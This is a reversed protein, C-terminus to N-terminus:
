KRDAKELYLIAKPTGLLRLRSLIEQRAQPDREREALRILEDDAQANFLGIIIPRKAPASARAYLTVLQDRGGAQGLTVIAVDRLRQDSESQAIRMLAPAADRQGLSMVVQYKVRENGTSYVQLLDNLVASGGLRGLERVAALRVPESGTKACEVVTSRADARGSQALVFLARRASGPNNGDLAIQKLMPIVKVADTHMLSGLAQIRLDTDPLFGDSMWATPPTPPRPFAPPAPTGPTPPAAPAVPAAPAAGPRPPPLLRYGRSRPAAPAPPSSPTPPLTPAAPTPVAVPAPPAPMAPPAPAVATYWLVDNRQLRQAIEIRLSRAPKVWRSAPYERELRRITAVAAASDRAQNESHALWFLAEDKSTEKPDAVAGKLEDIARVWQEDGILDKARELRQSEAPAARLEQAGCLAALVFAARIWIGIRHHGMIM